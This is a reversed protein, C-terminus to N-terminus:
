ASAIQLWELVKLVKALPVFTDAEKKKLNIYYLNSLFFYFSKLDDLEDQWDRYRDDWRPFTSYVAESHERFIM